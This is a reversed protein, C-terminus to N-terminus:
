IIYKKIELLKIEFMDKKYRRKKYRRNREQKLEGVKEGVQKKWRRSCYKLVYPIPYVIFILISAEFTKDEIDIM